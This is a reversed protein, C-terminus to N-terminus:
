SVWGFQFALTIALAVMMVAALPTVVLGLARSERGPPLLTAASLALNALSMSVFATVYAIRHWGEYLFFGGVALALTFISLGALAKARGPTLWSPVVPTAAGNRRTAMNLNRELQEAENRCRRGHTM